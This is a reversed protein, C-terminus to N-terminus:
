RFRPPQPQPPPSGHASSGGGCGGGTLVTTAGTVITGLPVFPPNWNSFDGARAIPYDSGNLMVVGGNLFVTSARVTLRGLSTIQIGHADIQIQGGLGALTVHNDAVDIWFFGSPSAFQAAAAGGRRPIRVAAIGTIGACHTFVSPSGTAITAGAARDGNRAVPCETGNLGILPAEIAATSGAHLDITTARLRIGSDSFEVFNTFGALILTDGRPEIFFLGNASALQSDDSARTATVVSTGSCLGGPSSWSWIEIGEMTQGDESLTMTWVATTTGGGEPRDGGFEVSSGEVGGHWTNPGGLGVVTLLAGEQTITVRATWPAEPECLNTVTVLFDWDGAVGPLAEKPPDPEVCAGNMSIVGGLTGEKTGLDFPELLTGLATIDYAFDISVTYDIVFDGPEQCTFPAEFNFVAGKGPTFPGRAPQDLLEGPLLPGKLAFEGSVSWDGLGGLSIQVFNEPNNESWITLIPTANTETITVPVTFLDSVEGPAEAEIRVASADVVVLTSFHAIGWQFTALDSGAVRQVAFQQAPPPHATDIIDASFLFPTPLGTGPADVTLSVTVPVDFELGDPQLRFAALVDAGGVGIPIGNLLFGNPETDVPTIQIDDPSVGAPLAGAPITLAIGPTATAGDEEGGDPAGDVLEIAITVDGGPQSWVAPADVLVWVGDGYDIADMGSLIAPQGPLYARFAQARADYTFASVFSDGISAFAVEPPTGSPGAWAVLNFGPQLPIEGLSVGVAQQWRSRGSVRVWVGDGREVAALDNLLPPATKRFSQFAQSTADWRHTSQLTNVAAAFASLPGSAPSLWGVLNWGQELVRPLTPPPPSEAQAVGLGLLAGPIGFDLRGVIEDHEDLANLAVAFEVQGPGSGASLADADVGLAMTQNQGESFFQVSSATVGATASEFRVGGLNLDLCLTFDLSLAPHGGITGEGARIDHPHM